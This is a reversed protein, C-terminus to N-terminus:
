SQYSQRYGRKVLIITLGIWFLDCLVLLWEQLYITIGLTFAFIGYYLGLSLFANQGTWQLVKPFKLLAIGMGCIALSTIYWGVFNAFTVDFYFGPNPYFYIKGLFWREGMHALPDTVVDLLTVLLAALLWLKIKGFPKEIGKKGGIASWAACLGAFNMFVYSVSDWVPVGHNIWEGRLAEYRYVYWGYPIGYNISLYESFFALDYGLLLFLLTWFGGTCRWAIVIYAILFAFVYPRKILTTLLVASYDEMKTSYDDELFPM